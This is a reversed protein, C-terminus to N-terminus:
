SCQEATMHGLPQRAALDFADGCNLVHLKINYISMSRSGQETSLNTATVARGDVIYVSGEGIVECAASTAVIATNEDIGIGLMRPNRAVASLLRSIRGRQAFHQDIVVHRFFGLGPAMDYSLNSERDPAGVLMTESMVSAGASTGAIAVGERFMEQIKECIDTGGIKTTIELQDGGTFFILSAGDLTNLHEADFAASRDPVDLHKVSKVGMGRFADQYELWTEEAVSSALTAVVITDYKALDSVRRLIDGEHKDEHGGIIVLTGRGEIRAEVVKAGEGHETRTRQAQETAM